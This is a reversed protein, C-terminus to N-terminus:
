LIQQRKQSLYNIASNLITINEDLLGIAANCKRCLLDRVKGTSHNHDICIANKLVYSKCIKCQGEQLNYMCDFQEITLGYVTKLKCKRSATRQQEPTRKHRIGNISGITRM